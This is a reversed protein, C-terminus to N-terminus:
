VRLPTPPSTAPIPSALSAVASSVLRPAGVLFRANSSLARIRAVVALTGVALAVGVCLAVVVANAETDNGDQLTHDWQDFMEVVSGGICIALIAAVAFRRFRV